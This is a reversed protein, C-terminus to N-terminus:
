SAEAAQWGPLSSSESRGAESAAQWHPHRWDGRAAKWPALPHTMPGGPEVIM